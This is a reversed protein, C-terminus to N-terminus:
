SRRRSPPRRSITSATPFPPSTGSTCSSATPSVAAASSASSGTARSRLRAGATRLAVRHRLDRYRPHRGALRAARPLQGARQHLDAPNLGATACPLCSRRARRCRTPASRSRVVENGGAGTFVVARVDTTSRPTVLRATTILRRLRNSTRHSRATTWCPSSPTQSGSCRTPLRRLPSRSPSCTHRRGSRSSAAPSHQRSRTSHVASASRSSFPSRRCTRRVQRRTSHTSPDRPPSYGASPQSLLPPRTSPSWVPMGARSRRRAADPLGPSALTSCAICYSRPSIPWRRRGRNGARRHVSTTVGAAHFGGPRISGKAARPRSADLVLPRTPSPM